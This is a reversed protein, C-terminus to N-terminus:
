KGALAAIERAMNQRAQRERQEFILQTHYLRPRELFRNLIHARGLRYEPEPVFAYERRIAQCYADYQAPSAGLTALDADLIIHGDIDAVATEHTKTILILRHVSAVTAAPIGLQALAQDAYDASREENDAARPDYIVDHFWIALQIAKFDRALTQLQQGVQLVERVHDLTHYYRGDEGYRAVLEEFVSNAPSMAVGLSAIL